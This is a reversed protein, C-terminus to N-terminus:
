LWRRGWMIVCVGILTIGAGILDYRDPQWDDFRWGWLISLV